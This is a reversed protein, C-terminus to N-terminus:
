VWAQWHAAYPLVIDLVASVSALCLTNYHSRKLMSLLQSNGCEMQEVQGVENLLILHESMHEVPLTDQKIFFGLVKQCSM